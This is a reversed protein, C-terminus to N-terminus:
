YLPNSTVQFSSPLKSVLLRSDPGSVFGVETRIEVTVPLAAVELMTSRTIDAIGSKTHADLVIDAIWSPNSYPIKFPMCYASAVSEFHM